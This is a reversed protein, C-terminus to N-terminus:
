KSEGKEHEALAERLGDAGGLGVCENAYMGPECDIHERIAAVLRASREREAGLAFFAEDRETLLKGNNAFVCALKTHTEMLEKELKLNAARLEEFAALEIVKVREHKGTYSGFIWHGCDTDSDADDSPWTAIEWERPNPKTISDNRTLSGLYKSNCIPCGVLSCDGIRKHMQIEKKGRHSM